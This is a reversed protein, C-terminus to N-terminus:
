ITKEFETMLEGLPTNIIKQEGKSIAPMLGTPTRNLSDTSPLNAATKWESWRKTWEASHKKILEPRRKIHELWVRRMLLKTPKNYSTLAKGQLFSLVDEPNM